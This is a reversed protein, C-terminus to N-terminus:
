SPSALDGVLLPESNDGVLGGFTATEALSGASTEEELPSLKRGTGGWRDGLLVPGGLAPATGDRSSSLREVTDDPCRGGPALPHGAAAAPHSTPQSWSRSLTTPEQPVALSTSRFIGEDDVAIDAVTKSLGSARLSRLVEALDASTNSGGLASEVRDAFATTGEFETSKHETYPEKENGVQGSGDPFGRKELEGDRLPRPPATETPREVRGDAIEQEQEQQQQQQSTLLATGMRTPETAAVPVNLYLSSSSSSSSSPSSSSLLLRSGGQDDSLSLAQMIDSVEAETLEGFPSGEGGGGGGGRGTPSVEVGGGEGAAAIAATAKALGAFLEQGADGQKHKQAAADGEKRTWSKAGKGSRGDGSASGGGSGHQGASAKTSSDIGTRGALGGVVDPAAPCADAAGAAPPALPPRSRLDDWLTKLFSRFASKLAALELEAADGSKESDKARRVAAESARRLGRWKAEADERWRHSSDKFQEYEERVSLLQKKTARYADDKRAVAARLTGAEAELRQLEAVQADIEATKKSLSGHWGRMSARLRDREARLDRVTATQVDCLPVSPQLAAGVAEGPSDATVADTDPLSGGRAEASLVRGGLTTTNANTRASKLAVIEAELATVKERLAKVTNGKVGADRFARALKEEQGAAEQRLRRLDEGLAAKAARLAVITRGRRESEERIVGLQQTRLKLAAAEADGGAAAAAAAAGGGGGKRPGGKKGATPALASSATATSRLREAERKYASVQRRLEKERSRSEDARDATKRHAALKLAASERQAGVVLERAALGEERLTAVEAEAAALRAACAVSALGTAEGTSQGDGDGEVGVRETPVPNAAIVGGDERLLADAEATKTRLEFELRQTRSRAEFVEEDAAALLNLLEDTSLPVSSSFACQYGGADGGGGSVSERGRKAATKPKPRAMAKIKRTTRRLKEELIAVRARHAEVVRALEAAVEKAERAHLRRVERLERARVRLREEAEALSSRNQQRQREEEEEEEQQQARAGTAATGEEDEDAPTGRAGSSVATAHSCAAAAVGLPVPEDEENGEQENDEHLAREYREKLKATAQWHSRQQRLLETRLRLVEEDLNGKAAREEELLEETVEARHGLDLVQARLGRVAEAWAAEVVTGGYASGSRIWGLGDPAGDTSEAVGAPGNGAVVAELRALNAELSQVGSSLGLAAATSPSSVRNRREGEGATRTPTDTSTTRAASRAPSTEVAGADNNASASSNGAAAAPTEPQAEAAADLAASSAALAAKREIDASPVLFLAGRGSDTLNVVPRRAREPTLGCATCYGKSSWAGRGGGGSSEAEPFLRLAFREAARTVADGVEGRASAEALELELHKLAATLAVEKAVRESAVAKAQSGRTSTDGAAVAAAAAGSVNGPSSTSGSERLSLRQHHHHRNSGSGSGGSTSRGLRDSAALDHKLEEIRIDRRRILHRLEAEASAAGQLRRLLDAQAVKAAVMVRAFRQAEVKSRDWGSLGAAHLPRDEDNRLGVPADRTAGATERAFELLRGLEKLAVELNERALGALKAEAKARAAEQVLAEREDKAESRAEVAGKLDVALGNCMRRLAEREGEVERRLAWEREIEEGGAGGGGRGTGEAPRKRGGTPVGTREELIVGGGGGGGGATRRGVGGDDVTISGEGSPGNDGVGGHEGTSSLRAASAQRNRREKDLNRRRESEAAEAGLRLIEAHAAGLQAKFREREEELREAADKLDGDARRRSAERASEVRRGATERADNEDERLRAVLARLSAVERRLDTAEERVGLLGATAELLKRELVSKGDVVAVTAAATSGRQPAALAAGRADGPPPLSRRCKQAEQLAPAVFETHWRELTARLRLTEGRLKGVRRESLQLRDELHAQEERGAILAQAMAEEGSVGHEIREISATAHRGEVDPNASYRSGSTFGGGGGGGGGGGIGDAPMKKNKRTLAVAAADAAGASGWDLVVGGHLALLDDKWWRGLEARIERRWEAAAAGDQEMTASVKHRELDAALLDARALPERAAAEAADARANAAAEGAVAAARAAGAAVLDEVAAAFRKELLSVAAVTYYSWRGTRTSAEEGADGGGFRIGGGGSGGGSGPMASSSSSEALQDAYSPKGAPPAAAAAAAASAAAVSAEAVAARASLRCVEERAEELATTADLQGRRAGALEWELARARRVARSCETDLRVATEQLFTATATLQRESLVTGKSGGGGGSPVATENGRRYGGGSPGIVDASTSTRQRRRRRRSKNNGDNEYDDGMGNSVFARWHAALEAIAAAVPSSAVSAAVTATAGRRRGRTGHGCLPPQPLSAGDLSLRDACEKIRADHAESLRLVEERHQQRNERLEVALAHCEARSSALRQCADDAGLEADRLARRLQSAEEGAERLRAASEARLSGLAAATKRAANELARNRRALDEEARAAARIKRDRRGAEAALREARREARGERALASTLRVALSVCRRALGQAGVHNLVGVGEGGDDVGCGSVDAAWFSSLKLSGRSTPTRATERDTRLRPSSAGVAAGDVNVGPAAVGGKRPSPPLPPPAFAPSTQLAEVTSTLVGIQADKESLLSTLRDVEISVNSDDDGGGGGGGTADIERLAAEAAACAGSSVLGDLLGLEEGKVRGRGGSSPESGDNDAGAESSSPRWSWWGSQVQSRLDRTHTRLAEIEGAALELKRRLAAEDGKTACNITYGQISSNSSGDGGGAPAALSRLRREDRAELQAADARRREALVENRLSEVEQELDRRRGAEMAAAAEQVGAAVWCEDEERREESRLRGPTGSRGAGSVVAPAAAAGSPSGGDATDGRALRALRACRNRMTWVQDEMDKVRRSQRYLTGAFRDILALASVTGGAVGDLTKEVAM